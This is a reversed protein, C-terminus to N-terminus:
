LIENTMKDMKGALSVGFPGHYMWLRSRTPDTPKWLLSYVGAQSIERQHDANMFATIATNMFDHELNHSNATYVARVAEFFATKVAPPTGHIFHFDVDASVGDEGRAGIELASIGGYCMIIIPATIRENRKLEANVLAFVLRHHARAVDTSFFKAM